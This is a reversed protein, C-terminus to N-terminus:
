TKLPLCEAAASQVGDLFQSLAAIMLMPVALKLVDANEPKHIDLFLGIVSQPHTLLVIAMVAMFGAAVSVNVYGAKRAAKLDQRGV